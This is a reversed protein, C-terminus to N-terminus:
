DDGKLILRRRQSAGNGDDAAFPKSCHRSRRPRALRWRSRTRPRTFWCASATPTARTRARAAVALPTDAGYAMELVAAGDALADLGATADRRRGLRRRPRGVGAGDAGDLARALATARGPRVRSGSAAAPAAAARAAGRAIAPRRAILRVHAGARTLAELAGAAAGGAGAMVVVSGRAAVGLDALAALLGAGDTNEARVGAARSSCCRTRPARCACRPDTRRRRARAAAAKHPITVNLYRYGQARLEAVLARVRRRRRLDRRIRRRHRARPVRRQPDRALPEQQRRRGARGRPDNRTADRRGTADIGGDHVRSPSASAPRVDAASTVVHGDARQTLSFGRELVRM